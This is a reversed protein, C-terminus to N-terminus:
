LDLEFGADGGGIVQRAIAQGIDADAALHDGCREVLGDATQLVVKVAQERVKLGAILARWGSAVGKGGPM